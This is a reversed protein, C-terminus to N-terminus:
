TEPCLAGASQVSVVAKHVKQRRRKGAQQGKRTAVEGRRLVARPRGVFATAPLAQSLAAEASKWGNVETMETNTM